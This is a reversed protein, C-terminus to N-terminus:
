SANDTGTMDIGPEEESQGTEASDQATPVPEQEEPEWVNTLHDVAYQAADASFNDGYASVLQDYIDAKSMHMTDSYANARNLAQYYKLPISDVTTEPQYAEVTQPGDERVDITEAGTPVAMDQTEESPLILPSPDESQSSRQIPITEPSVSESQILATEVSVNSDPPGSEGASVAHFIIFCSLVAACGGISAFIATLVNLIPNSRKM